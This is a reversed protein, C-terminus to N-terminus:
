AISVTIFTAIAMMPMVGKMEKELLSYIRYDSTWRTKTAVEKIEVKVMM